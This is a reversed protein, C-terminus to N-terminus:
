SFTRVLFVVVVTFLLVNIKKGSSGESASTNTSASLARRARKAKAYAFATMMSFTTILAVPVVSMVCDFFVLYFDNFIEVDVHTSNKLYEGPNALSGFM